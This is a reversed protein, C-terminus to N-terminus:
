STTVYSGKVCGEEESGLKQKRDDEVVHFARIMNLIYIGRLNSSRIGLAIRLDERRRNLTKIIAHLLSKHLGALGDSPVESGQRSGVM